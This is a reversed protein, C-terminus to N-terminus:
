DNAHQEADPSGDLSIHPLALETVARRAHIAGIRAGCRRNVVLAAGDGVHASAPGGVNDNVISWDSPYSGTTRPQPDVHRFVASPGSLLSQQRADGQLPM